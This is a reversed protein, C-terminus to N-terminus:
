GSALSRAFHDLVAELQAITRGARGRLTSPAVAVGLREALAELDGSPRHTRSCYLSKLQITPTAPGNMASLLALAGQTWGVIVDSPRLFARWAEHLETATGGSGVVSTTLGMHELHHISPFRAAPPRVIQEFLEGTALRRAAWQLVLRERGRRPSTPPSPAAEGAVLVLREPAGLLIGLSGRVRRSTPKRKGARREAIIALQHDIMADFAGLLDTLGTTEPELIRLAAVVAEITSVSDASPERRLRYRSAPPRLRYRPLERLWATDRVVTRANAWTGDVVVLAAPREAATLTDLDRADDGPYLLATSEPLSPPRAEGRDHIVDLAVNDLGLRAIRATGIPHFRERPHQVLHVHTRNRVRPVRACICTVEAKHCRYCFPRAGGIEIVGDHSM